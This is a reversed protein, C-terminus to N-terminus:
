FHMSEPVLSFMDNHTVGRDIDKKVPSRSYGGWVIIKGDPTAVMCPASRPLPQVVGMPKIEQWTYSEMSFMWIDNFYRYSVGSDYFGGFVVLKKKLAVM